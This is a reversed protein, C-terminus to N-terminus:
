QGNSVEAGGKAGSVAASVPLFQGKWERLFKGIGRQISDCETIRPVCPDDALESEDEMRRVASQIPRALVGPGRRRKVADEKEIARSTEGNAGIPLDKSRDVTSGRPLRLGARGILM